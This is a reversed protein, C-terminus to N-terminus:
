KGFYKLTQKNDKEGHLGGGDWRLSKYSPLKSESDFENNWLNKKLFSLLDNSEIM